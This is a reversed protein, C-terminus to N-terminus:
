GVTHVKLKVISANTSPAEIPDRQSEPPLEGFKQVFLGAPSAPLNISLQM